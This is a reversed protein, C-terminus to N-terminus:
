PSYGLLSMTQEYFKGPLFVLPNGNGEGPYRGLRPNSGLHRTNCASEKGSFWWPLGLTYKAWINNEMRRMDAELSM